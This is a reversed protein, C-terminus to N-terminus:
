WYRVDVSPPLVQDAGDLPLLSVILASPWVVTWNRLVSVAPLTEAHAGAFGPAPLVTLSSRVAGVSGVETM